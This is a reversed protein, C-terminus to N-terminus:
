SRWEDVTEFLSKLGKSLSKKETIKDHTHPFVVWKKDLESEPNAFIFCLKPFKAISAWNKIVEELNEKTNLVIITIPSDNLKKLIGNFKDITPSVLYYKKEGLKTNVVIDWGEKNEEISDITKTIVDRNKIYNLAWEKLMEREKSM